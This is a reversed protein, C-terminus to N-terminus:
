SKVDMVGQPCHAYYFNCVGPLLKETKINEPKINAGELQMEIKSWNMKYSASNEDASEGAINEKSYFVYTIGSTTVFIGPATGRAKFLVDTASQGDAGAVQGKNEQFAFTSKIPNGGFFLSPVALFLLLNKKM